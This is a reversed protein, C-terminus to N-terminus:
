EIIIEGRVTLTGSSLVTLTVPSFVHLDHIVSEGGTLIPLILANGDITINSACDPLAQPSWNRSDNWDSGLSGTWTMNHATIATVTANHYYDQFPNDFLPSHSADTFECSRGYDITNNFIINPSGSHYTFLLNLLGAGASLTVSTSGIWIISIKRQSSNVPLDEVTLGTLSANIDTASQFSLLTPDYELLLKMSTIGTFGTTTFPISVTEEPCTPLSGATLVPAPIEEAAYAKICLDYPMSTAAGMATWTTGNASAWCKGTEITANSSYGAQISEVCIPTLYGPTYYKTRIYFDNGSGLNLPEPLEFTYYGMQPVSQEPLTALLNTLNTGDFDDYIEFSVTGNYNAIWTSIRTVPFADTTTFKILGYATENNFGVDVVEGFDDYYYLTSNPNVSAYTPYYCVEENVRTDNYSIYFYGNEGWSAGWSNKVIWAGTGGATVKTDDWGAITVGHNQLQTGNYYYTYDVPNYYPDSVYFVTYVAGYDLIAQKISAEDKTLFRANMQFAVPTIGGVCAADSDVYPDSSENIPGANKSLYAISVWSNGGFCPAWDFGPCDKLNNESFDQDGLGLIKLHSEISGYTAFAWCSSCGGQNRVPTMKGTTRLDYVAPFINPADQQSGSVSKVPIKKFPPIYGLTHGNSTIASKKGEKLEQMYRLFDPNTESVTLTQAFSPSLMLSFLFFM